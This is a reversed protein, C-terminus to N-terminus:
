PNLECTGPNIFFNLVTTSDLGVAIGNCNGGTTDDMFRIRDYSAVPLAISYTGDGRTRVTLFRNESLVGGSRIQVRYNPQVATKTDDTYVTGTLMGGAALTITGLDHNEGVATTTIPDNTLGLLLQTENNYIISSGTTGARDIRIELVHSDILNTYTTFHGNNDGYEFGMFSPTSDYLRLKARKVPIAGSDVLVGQIVSVPDSFDVVVTSGATSLDVAKSNQGYAYVDYSQPKLWIHYYGQRDSIESGYNTDGALDIRVRASIVPNSSAGDTITGTLEAGTELTFNISTETGAALSVPIAMNSNNSGSSGDYYLSAYAATTSNVALIRYVGPILNILYSGDSEVKASAMHIGDEYNSFVIEVGALAAGGGAAHVTGTVTAGDLLQINTYNVVPVGSTVTVKDAQLRPGPASSHMWGSASRFVNTAVDLHNYVGVIYEGDYNGGDPDVDGQLPLNVCYNGAPDSVTKAILKWDSYAQVRVDVGSLFTGASTTILGCIAGGAVKSSLVRFRAPGRLAQAQLRDSLVTASPSDSTVVFPILNDVDAQIEQVERISLATFDTVITTVLDSTADTSPNIDVQMDTVRSDLIDAGEARAIYKIDPADLPTKTMAYVGSNDTTASDIASGLKTGSEDIEYLNVIVGSLVGGPGSLTGTIQDNDTISVIASLNAGISAGGVPNSLTVNFAEILEPISDNSITIDISKSATDGNTWNLTGIKGEFDGPSVATDAVTAYDVSVAGTSGLTRSVNLTVTTNVGEIVSYNTNEFQLTGPATGIDDDNIDITATVTTGLGAGVVNSLTVTFSEPNEPISDNSIPIDFTKATADQDAWSLTGSSASYDSTATASGDATLYDVSAAGDSGNVREVSITVSASTGETASYSINSFIITGPKSETGDGNGGGGTALITLLGFIFIQILLFTKLIERVNSRKM